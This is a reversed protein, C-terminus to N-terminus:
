PIKVTMHHLSSNNRRIPYSECGAVGFTLVQEPADASSTRVEADAGFKDEFQVWLAASDEGSIDEEWCGCYIVQHLYKTFPPLRDLIVFPHELDKTLISGAIDTFSIEDVVLCLLQCLRKYSQM